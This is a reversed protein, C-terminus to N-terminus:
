RLRTWYKHRTTTHRPTCIPARVNSIHEIAAPLTKDERSAKVHMCVAGIVYELLM